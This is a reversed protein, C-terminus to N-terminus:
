QETVGGNKVCEAYEEPNVKTWCQNDLNTNNNKTKGKGYQLETKSYASAPKCSDSQADFYEGVRCKVCTGDRMSSGGRVSSSCDTCNTIDGASPFAKDPDKCFYVWCNASENKVMRHLSSNFKSAPFDSCYVPPLMDATAKVCDTNSDNPTYGEKCLLKKGTTTALSATDVYSNIDKWDEWKCRVNVPAAIVGNKLFQVVGLVVNHEGSDKSTWWYQWTKFGAINSEYNTMYQGWTNISIGSKLNSIVNSSNEIVNVQKLCGAGSYGKECLWACRSRSFGNPYFYETWTYKNKRANRCQLQYPCFYGGHENIQEAIVVAIAGEDNISNTFSSKRCSKGLCGDLIFEGVSGQSNQDGTYGWASWYATSDSTAMASTQSICFPVIVAAIKKLKM